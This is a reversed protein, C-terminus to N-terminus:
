DILALTSKVKENLDVIQKIKDEFPIEFINKRSGLLNLIQSWFDGSLVSTINETGKKIKIYKEVEDIDIIPYKEIIDVLLYYKKTKSLKRLDNLNRNYIKVFEHSSNSYNVDLYFLTLYDLTKLILLKKEEEM